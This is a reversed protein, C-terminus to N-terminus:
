IRMQKLMIYSSMESPHLTSGRYGNHFNPHKEVVAQQAVNASKNKLRNNINQKTSTPFTLLSYKDRM